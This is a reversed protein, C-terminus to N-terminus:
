RRLEMRPKADPLTGRWQLLQKKMAAARKAQTTVLNHAEHPDARLDYL